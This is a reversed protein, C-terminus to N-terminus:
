PRAGALTHPNLDRRRCWVFDRHRERNAGVAAKRHLSGDGLVRTRELALAGDPVERTGAADKQPDASAPGGQAKM